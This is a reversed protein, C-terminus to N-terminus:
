TLARVHVTMRWMVHQLAADTSDLIWFVTMHDPHNQESKMDVPPLILFFPKKQEAKTFRDM